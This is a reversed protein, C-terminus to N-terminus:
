VIHRREGNEAERREALVKARKIEYGKRRVKVPRESAVMYPVMLVGIIVTSLTSLTLLVISAKPSFESFGQLAQAFPLTYPCARHSTLNFFLSSVQYLLTSQVFASPKLRDFLYKFSLLTRLYLILSFPAFPGCILFIAKFAWMLVSTTLEVLTRYELFAIFIEFLIILITLLYLLKTFFNREFQIGDGEMTSRFWLFAIVGLQVTSIIFRYGLKQDKRIDYALVYEIALFFLLPLYSFVITNQKIQQALDEIVDPLEFGREEDLIHGVRVCLVITMFSFFVTWDRQPGKAVAWMGAMIVGIIVEQPWVGTVGEIISDGVAAYAVIATVVGVVTLREQKTSFSVYVIFREFLHSTSKLELIFTGWLMVSLGISALSSPKGLYMLALFELSRISVLRLSTQTM